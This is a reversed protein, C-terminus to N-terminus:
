ASFYSHLVRCLIDSLSVLSASENWLEVKMHPSLDDAIRFFFPPPFVASINQPFLNFYAVARQLV